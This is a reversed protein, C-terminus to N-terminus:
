NCTLPQQGKNYQERYILLYAAPIVLMSMVPSLIMGGIMPAAIQQMIQNGAGSSLMIPLLGIVITCVTMVKPRIRLLAGQRVAEVTSQNEKLAQNLYIIIVVGFEAAVGCLAIMGIALTGSM